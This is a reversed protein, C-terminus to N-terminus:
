PLWNCRLTLGAKRGHGARHENTHERPRSAPASQRRPPPFPPRALAAHSSCPLRLSTLQMAILAFAVGIMSLLAAKSIM